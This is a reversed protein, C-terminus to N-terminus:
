RQNIKEVLSPHIFTTAVAAVGDISVVVRRDGKLRLFHGEAGAFVGGTIRVMDGKQWGNVDPELYIIQQDPQGAVAIFSNMQRDPVSIPAANARDIIYRVPLETSDHYDKLKDFSCRTFILNNIAPVLYKVKREGRMAMKCTMPLFNEIKLRDLEHKVKLGRNYAIRLAWWKVTQTDSVNMKSRIRSHSAISLSVLHMLHRTQLQNRNEKGDPYLM